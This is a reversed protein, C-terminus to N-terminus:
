KGDSKQKPKRFLLYVGAILVILAALDIPEFHGWSGGLGKLGLYVALLLAWGVAATWRGIKHGESMWGLCCGAAPALCWILLLGGGLADWGSGWVGSLYLAGVCATLSLLVLPVFKEWTWEATRCLLAQLCFAPIAHVSVLLTPKLNTFWLHDLDIWFLAFYLLLSAAFCVALLRNKRDKM